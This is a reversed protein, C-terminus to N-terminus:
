FIAREAKLQQRFIMAGGHAPHRLAPAEIGLTELAAAATRGVALIRAGDV